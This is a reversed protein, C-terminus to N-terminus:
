RGHGQYASYLCPTGAVFDWGHVDDVYGNNDDDEYDSGHAEHSNTWINDTLDPHTIDVGTDLIAIVPRETEIKDMAWLQPLKIANLGWQLDYMPESQYSTADDTTQIFVLYNPEAYEVEDLAKLAEVVEEVTLDEQEFKLCYLLSLDPETVVRGSLAKARRPQGKVAGTLPMLQEAEKVGLSNLVTDVANVRSTSFKGNVSKINVPSSAKFKVIIEGPRYAMRASPDIKYVEDVNYNSVMQALLPMTAMLAVALLLLPKLFSQHKM